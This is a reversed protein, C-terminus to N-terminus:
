FAFRPHTRRLAELPVGGPRLLQPPDDVLSLITSELGISTPGADLLVDLEAALDDLVHQATTPSPRSFRNASPAAIPVGAAQILAAAVAHDPMRVAVTDLGATLNLPVKPSKLLVLTLAGPWFRDCLAYALDPM